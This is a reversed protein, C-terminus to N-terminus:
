KQLTIDAVSAKIIQGKTLKRKKQNNAKKNYCFTKADHIM